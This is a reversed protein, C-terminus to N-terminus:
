EGIGFNKSLTTFSFKKGCKCCTETITYTENADDYQCDTDNSKFKHNGALGCLFQIIKSM